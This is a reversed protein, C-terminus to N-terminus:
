CLARWEASTRWPQLWGKALDPYQVAV